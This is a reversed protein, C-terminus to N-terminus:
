STDIYKLGTGQLMLVTFYKHSCKSIRYLSDIGRERNLMCAAAASPQQAKENPLFTLIIYSFWM